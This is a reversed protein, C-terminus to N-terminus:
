RANAPAIFEKQQTKHQLHKILNSTNEFSATTGGRSIKVYSLKCDTKSRNCYDHVVDLYKM